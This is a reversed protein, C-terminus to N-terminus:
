SPDCDEGASRQYWVVCYDGQTVRWPSEPTILAQFLKPNLAVWCHSLNPNVCCDSAREM